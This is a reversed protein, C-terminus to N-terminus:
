HCVPSSVLCPSRPMRSQGFKCHNIDMRVARDVASTCPSQQAGRTQHHRQSASEQLRRYNKAHAYIDFPVNFMNFDVMIQPCYLTVFITPPLKNM